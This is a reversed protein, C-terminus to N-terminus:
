HNDESCAEVDEVVLWEENKPTKTEPTNCILFGCMEKEDRTFQGDGDSSYFKWFSFMEQEETMANMSMNMSSGLGPISSLM